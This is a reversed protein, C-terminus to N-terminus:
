KKALYPERDCRYCVKKHGTKTITRLDFLQGTYYQVGSFMVLATKDGEKEITQLIDEMRLNHEGERPKVLVM